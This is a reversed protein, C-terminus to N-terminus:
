RPMVRLKIQNHVEGRGLSALQEVDGKESTRPEDALHLRIRPERKKRAPKALVRQAGALAKGDAPTSLGAEM